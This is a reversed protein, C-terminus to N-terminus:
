ATGYARVALDPNLAKTGYLIDLRYSSVDNIGDYFPVMRISIGNYTVQEAGVVGAPKEMPVMTLAFAEKTFTMNQAYGVGSAGSIVAIDADDAPAASVNRYPSSDGTTASIIAPYYSITSNGSGDTTSVATVVFPKLFPLTAKTVPNVAFVNAITFVDGINLTTTTATWGDTIISGTMTAKVSSYQYVQNAGNVKPTGGYTGVTHTQVNQLGYPDVDGIKPLKAKELASKATDNIYLGSFNALLAWQDTPSLAAVRGMEPMACLDMREPAKSFDSYSNIVQGATGVLNPVFKYLGLVDIDVQNALKIAAPEIYKRSFDSISLTLDSSSFKFPINKQKDVTVTTSGEIIDNMTAVAGDNVNYQVPRSITVSSGVKYGNVNQSFSEEIGRYVLQGARLNNEFRHTMERLIITPTLIENAM